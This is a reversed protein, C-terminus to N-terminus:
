AKTAAILTSDLPALLGLLAPPLLHLFDRLAQPM